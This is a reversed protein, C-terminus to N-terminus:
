KIRPSEAYAISDNMIGGYSKSFGFDGFLSKIKELELACFVTSHANPSISKIRSKQPRNIKEKSLINTIMSPAM